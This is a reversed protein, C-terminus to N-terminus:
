IKYFSKNGDKLMKEVWGPISKRDEKMRGLTKEFGLADWVQFPGLEWGFGWKLANDISVIDDAIDGNLYASYLLTQSFVEWTFEGAVDPSDVLASIKSLLNNSFSAIQM